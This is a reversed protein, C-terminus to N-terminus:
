VVLESIGLMGISEHLEAYYEVILIVIRCINMHVSKSELMRIESVNSLDVIPLFEVNVVNLKWM